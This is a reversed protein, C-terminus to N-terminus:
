RARRQRRRTGETGLEFQGGSRGRRNGSGALVENEERLHTDSAVTKILHEIRPDLAKQGMDCDKSNKGIPTINAHDRSWNGEGEKILGVELSDRGCLCGIPNTNASDLTRPV